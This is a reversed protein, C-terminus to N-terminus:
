GANQRGSDPLPSRGAGPAPVEGLVEIVACGPKPCPRPRGRWGAATVVRIVAAATRCPDEVQKWGVRLTTDGVTVSAVDRDMDEWRDLTQEHGLRGDLEVVVALGLYEVDRYAATRGQVVRRQRKGTPLGHPVEVRTLYRHELVSYVGTAVDSLVQLLFQRRPLTVRQELVATLRQATTRRSQCADALVAIADPIRQAGSAVDLLAHELRVRAPSRNPQILTALNHVRHLRVGPLESVRRAQDVSVHIRNDRESSMLLGHIKLASVHSLAAPWSYLVAGLARQLWSLEGTHDVYVGRHVKAWERRRLRREIYGDDLGTGLVQSRSVVGCQAVLLEKVRDDGSQEHPQDGFQDPLLGPSDEQFITM